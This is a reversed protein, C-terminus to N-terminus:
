GDVTAVCARSVKQPSERQTYGFWPHGAKVSSEIREHGTGQTELTVVALPLVFVSIRRGKTLQTEADFM